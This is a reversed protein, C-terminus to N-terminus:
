LACRGFSRSRTSAPCSAAAATGLSGRYAACAARAGGRGSRVASAAAFAAGRAARAAGGVQVCALEEASLPLGGAVRARTAEDLTAATDNAMESKAAALLV